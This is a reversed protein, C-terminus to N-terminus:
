TELAKRYGPGPKYPDSEAYAEPRDFGAENMRNSIVHLIAKRKFGYADPNNKVYEKAEAAIENVFAFRNDESLMLRELDATLLGGGEKMHRVQEELFPVREMNYLLMDDKKTLKRRRWVRRRGRGGNQSQSSGESKVSFNLRPPYRSSPNIRSSPSSFLGISLSSSCVMEM